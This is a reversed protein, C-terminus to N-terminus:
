KIKWNISEVCPDHGLNLTKGVTQVNGKYKIWLYALDVPTTKLCRQMKIHLTFKM